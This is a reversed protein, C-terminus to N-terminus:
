VLNPKKGNYLEEVKKVLVEEKFLSVKELDLNFEKYDLIRKAWDKAGLSLDLFECAGVNVDKPVCSSAFCPVGMVQSEVAVMGFAESFSPLLSFNMARYISPSTNPPLFHVKDIVGLKKAHNTLSDKCEGDGVFYLEANKVENLEKLVDIIFNQNKVPVLRGVHILNIASTNICFEKVASEKDYISPNFRTFDIPPYLVCLKPDKLVKEGYKVACAKLSDGSKVTAWKNYKRQRHKWIIKTIFSKNVNDGFDSVAEHFHLIRVPIRLKRALIIGLSAHAHVHIVDYKVKGIQSLIQNAINKYQFYYNLVPTKNLLPKNFCYVKSGNSKVFEETQNQKYQGDRIFDVSFKQKDLGNYISMAVNTVGGVNFSNM